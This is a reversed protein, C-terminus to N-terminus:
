SANGRYTDYCELIAQRTFGEGAFAEDEDRVGQFTSLVYELDIL